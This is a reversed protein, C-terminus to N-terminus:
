GTNDGREDDNKAVPPPKYGVAHGMGSVTRYVNLMGAGSGLLFFLILFLPKTGLWRDLFWGIVVGIILGAVLETGIRLALGLGQNAGEERKGAFKRRRKRGGPTREQAARLRADFDDPSSHRDQDSMYGLSADPELLGTQRSVSVPTAGTLCTAPRSSGGGSVARVM